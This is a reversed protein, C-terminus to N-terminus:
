PLLRGTNVYHLEAETLEHDDPGTDWAPWETPYMAHILVVELETPPRDKRSAQWADILWDKTNTRKMRLRNHREAPPIRRLVQTVEARLKPVLDGLHETFKDPEINRAEDADM